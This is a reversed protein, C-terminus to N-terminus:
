CEISLEFVACTMSILEFVACTMSILVLSKEMQSSNRFLNMGEQIRAAHCIVVDKKLEQKKKQSDGAVFNLCPWLTVASLSVAIMAREKGQSQLEISFVFPDIFFNIYPSLFGHLGLVVRLLKFMGEPDYIRYNQTTFPTSFTDNVRQWESNLWKILLRQSIVKNHMKLSDFFLM